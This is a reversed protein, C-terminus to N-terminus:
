AAAGQSQLEYFGGFGKPRPYQIASGSLWPTEGPAYYPETVGRALMHVCRFDDAPAHEEALRARVEPKLDHGWNSRCFACFIRQEDVSMLVLPTGGHITPHGYTNVCKQCYDYGISLQRNDPYRCAGGGITNTSGCWGCKPKGHWGTPHVKFLPQAKTPETYDLLALLDLQGTIM